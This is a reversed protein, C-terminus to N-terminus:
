IWLRYVKIFILSTKNIRCNTIKRWDFNWDKNLEQSLELCAANIEQLQLCLNENQVEQDEELACMDLVCGEFIAKIVDEDVNKICEKWPSSNDKIVGCWEPKSYILPNDCKPPAM